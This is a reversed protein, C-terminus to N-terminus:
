YWNLGLNLSGMQVDTGDYHAVAGRLQLDLAFTRSSVLEYGAGIMAASGTESAAVEEGDSDSVSLRGVGIGGKIWFQPSVWYQAAITDVVNILTGGGGELTHAVGMGDFMLALQPTIMGGLHIDLAIGSLSENCEDCTISGGGLSFGILFGRREPSPAPAGVPQAYYGPPPPPPPPGYAGPQAAAISPVLLALSAILKVLIRRLL